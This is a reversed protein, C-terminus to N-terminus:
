SKRLICFTRRQNDTGNSASFQYTDTHLLKFGTRCLHGICDSFGIPHKRFQRSEIWLLGGGKLAAYLVRSTFRAFASMSNPYVALALVVDFQNKYPFREFPNNYFSCNYIKLYDGILRAIEAFPKQSELGDVRAVCEAIRLSLCGINSGLDLIRYDPKLFEAFRYVEFRQEVPRQGELGIRDWAQYHRYSAKGPTRAEIEQLLEEQNM